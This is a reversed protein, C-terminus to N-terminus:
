IKLVAIFAVVITLLKRAPSLRNAGIILLGDLIEVKTLLDAVKETGAQVPTM